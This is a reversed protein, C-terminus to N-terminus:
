MIKFNLDVIMIFFNILLVLFLGKSIITGAIRTAIAIAKTRQRVTNEFPM